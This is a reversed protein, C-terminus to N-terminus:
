NCGKGKDSYGKGTYINKLFENHHRWGQPCHFGWSRRRPGTIFLTWVPLEGSLKPELEIRHPVNALRFVVSGAHREKVKTRFVEYYSGKLIVSLNDYEHDHLARDDDSRLFKHLYVNFLSNRPLIHWRMLYTKGLPGIEVDPERHTIRDIFADTLRHALSYM